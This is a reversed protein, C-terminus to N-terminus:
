LSHGEWQKSVEEKGQKVNNQTQIHVSMWINMWRKQLSVRKSHGDDRLPLRERTQTNKEQKRSSSVKQKSVVMTNAQKGWWGKKRKIETQSSIRLCENLEESAPKPKFSRWRNPCGTKWEWIKEWTEHLYEAIVMRWVRQYKHLMTAQIVKMDGRM